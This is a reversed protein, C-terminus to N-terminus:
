FEKYRIARYWQGSCALFIALVALAQIIYILTPIFEKDRNSMVFTYSKDSCVYVKGQMLM